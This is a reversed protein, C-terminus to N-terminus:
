SRKLKALWSTLMDTEATMDCKVDNRLRQFRRERTRIARQAAVRRSRELVRRQPLITRDLQEWDGSQLNPQDPM